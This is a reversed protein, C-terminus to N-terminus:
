FRGEVTKALAALDKNDMIRQLEGKPTKLAVLAREVQKWLRDKEKDTEALYLSSVLEGLKQTELHDRNDYYRKIIGRQHPTHTM